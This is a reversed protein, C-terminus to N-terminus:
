SYNHALVQSKVIINDKSFPYGRYFAPLIIICKQTHKIFGDLADHTSANYLVEKGMQGLDIYIKPECIYCMYVISYTKKCFDKIIDSSDSNMNLENQIEKVFSNYNINNRELYSSIKKYNSQYTKRLVNDIPDFLNGEVVCTKKIKDELESFYNRVIVNFKTLTKVFFKVLGKINLEPQLLDFFIDQCTIKIYDNIKNQLETIMPFQISTNTNFGPVM